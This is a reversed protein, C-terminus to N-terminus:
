KKGCRSRAAASEIRGKEAGTILAADVLDQSVIAVCSVYEGDNAWPDDCGCPPDIMRDIESCGDPDVLASPLTLPCADFQGGFNDPVGDGDFDEPAIISYVSFSSLLVSCDAIDPPGINIVCVAGLPEFKGTEENLKYVDLNDRQNQNLSTVDVMFTVEAPPDFTTGDPGLDYTAISTGAAANLLHSM